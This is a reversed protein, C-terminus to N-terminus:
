EVILDDLDLGLAKCLALINKPHGTRRQEISSVTTQPVKSKRALTSQSWGKLIRQRKIKDIAYRMDSDM